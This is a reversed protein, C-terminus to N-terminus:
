YRPTELIESLRVPVNVLGAENLLQKAPELLAAERVVVAEILRGLNFPM